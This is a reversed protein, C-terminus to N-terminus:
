EQPDRARGGCRRRRSVAGSKAPQQELSVALWERLERPARQIEEQVWDPALDIEEPLWTTDAPRYGRRGVGWPAM